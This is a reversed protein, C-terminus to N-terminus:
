KQKKLQQDYLTELFYLVRKEDNTFPFGEIKKKKFNLLLNMLAVDDYFGKNETLWSATGDVIAEEMPEMLSLGCMYGSIAGFVVFPWSASWTYHNFYPICLIVVTGFVGIFTGILGKGLQVKSRHEEFKPLLKAIEFSMQKVDEEFLITKMDAIAEIRIPHKLNTSTEPLPFTESTTTSLQIKYLKEVEGFAAQLNRLYKEVEDAKRQIGSIITM